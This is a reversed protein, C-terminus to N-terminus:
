SSHPASSRKRRSAGTCRPVPVDTTKAVYDMLRFQNDLDYEPFVPDSEPSPAVCSSPHEQGDWEADVIVTESSM